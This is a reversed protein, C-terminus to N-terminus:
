VPFYGEYVLFSTLSFINSQATNRLMMMAIRWAITWKSGAAHHPLPAKPSHLHFVWGAKTIRMCQLLVLGNVKKKIELL